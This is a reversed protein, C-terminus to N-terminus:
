SAMARISSDPSQLLNWWALLQRYESHVPLM